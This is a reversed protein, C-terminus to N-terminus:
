KKRGLVRARNLPTRQAPSAPTAPARGKGPAPAPQGATAGGTSAPSGAGGGNLLGDVVDGAVKAVGAAAVWGIVATKKDDFEAVGTPSLKALATDAPLAANKQLELAKDASPIIRAEVAQFAAGGKGNEMGAGIGGAPATTNVNAHAQSEDQLRLGGESGAQAATEPVWHLGEKAAGSAAKNQPDGGDGWKKLTLAEDKPTQQKGNKAWHGKTAAVAPKDPVSEVKMGNTFNAGVPIGPGSSGLSNNVSNTLAQEFMVNKKFQDLGADSSSHGLM